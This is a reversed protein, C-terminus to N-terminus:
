VISARLCVTPQHYVGDICVEERPVISYERKLWELRRAKDWEDWGEPKDFEIVAERIMVGRHVMVLDMPFLNIREKKSLTPVSM